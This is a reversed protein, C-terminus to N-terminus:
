YDGQADGERVKRQLGDLYDDLEAVSAFVSSVPVAKVVDFVKRVPAQPKLLLFEGGATRMQKQAKFLVRLGASSIYDLRELDFVLAHEPPALLSLADDLDGATNSDLRGGLSVRRRGGAEEDIEIMLSM